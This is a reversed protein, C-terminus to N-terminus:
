IVDITLEGKTGQLLKQTSQVRFVVDVLGTQETRELTIDYPNNGSPANITAINWATVSPSNFVESDLYYPEARLTTSNSLFVFPSTLARPVVGYLTSVEYFLLRPAAVPLALTRKAVVSGDLKTVTLSLISSSDQPMTFSVRNGGRLPGGQLVTNNLRWTYLYENSLIVATSLLATANVTSDPTALARGKYFAPVHTQPEFIIDLYIPTIIRSVTESSGSPKSLLVKVVASEGADPSVLTISRQNYAWDMKTDNYYWDITAGFAGGAYDNLDITFSQNPSPYSPSLELSLNTNLFDEGSTQAGSFGPTLLLLLGFLFLRM